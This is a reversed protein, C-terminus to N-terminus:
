DKEKNKKKLTSLDYNLKVSRSLIGSSTQCDEM